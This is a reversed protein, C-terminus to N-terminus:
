KENKLLNYLKMIMLIAERRLIPRELEQWNTIWLEIAKDITEQQMKKKYNLILVEDVFDSIAYRTFLTPYLDFPITFYWNEPGYSNIWTFWTDDYGIICFAHWVIKWDTRLTYLHKSAVSNWNWNNSGTFIFKWSDVASKWEEITNVKSYGAILKENLFQDVSSQLSAGNTKSLPYLKCYELWLRKALWEEQMWQNILNNGNTINALGQRTCSMQTESDEWQNPIILKDKPFKIIPVIWLAGFVESYKYDSQRPNDWCSNLM